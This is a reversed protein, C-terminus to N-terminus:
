YQAGAHGQTAAKSYWDFAQRLNKDTGVGDEFAIAVSFQAGADGRKAMIMDLKFQGADALVVKAGFFTTAIVLILVLQKYM